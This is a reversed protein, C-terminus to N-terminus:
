RVKKKAQAREARMGCQAVRNRDSSAVVVHRRICLGVGVIGATAINCGCWGAPVIKTRAM